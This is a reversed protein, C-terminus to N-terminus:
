IRDALEIPRQGHCTHDQYAHERSVPEAPTTPVATPGSFKM